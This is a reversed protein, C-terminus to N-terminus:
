YMYLQLIAATKCPRLLTQQRVQAVKAMPSVPAPNSLPRFEHFTWLIELGRKSLPEKNNTPYSMFYWKSIRDARDSFQSENILLWIIQVKEDDLRDNILANGRYARKINNNYWRNCPIHIDNVQRENSSWSLSLSPSHGFSERLGLRIFKLIIWNYIIRYM